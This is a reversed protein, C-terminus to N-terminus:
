DRLNRESAGFAGLFASIARTLRDQDLAQPLPISLVPRNTQPDRSVLSALGEGTPASQAM